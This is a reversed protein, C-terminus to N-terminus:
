PKIISATKDIFSETLHLIPSLVEEIETGDYCETKSEFHNYAGVINNYWMIKEQMSVTENLVSAITHSVDLIYGCYAEVVDDLELMDAENSSDSYKASTIIGTLKSNIEIFIAQLSSM